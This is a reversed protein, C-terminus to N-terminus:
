ERTDENKVLRLQKTVSTYQTPKPKRQTLQSAVIKEHTKRYGRDWGIMYGIVGVGLMGIGIMWYFM